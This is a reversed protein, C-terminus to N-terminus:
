LLCIRGPIEASVKKPFPSFPFDPRRLKSGPRAEALTIEHSSLRHLHLQQGIRNIQAALPEPIVSPMKVFDYSDLLRSIVNFGNLDCTILVDRCIFDCPARVHAAATTFPLDSLAFKTVCPEHGPM